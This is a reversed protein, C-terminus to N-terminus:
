EETAQQSGGPAAPASLGTETKHAKLYAADLRACAQRYEETEAYMGVARVRLTLGERDRLAEGLKYHTIVDASQATVAGPRSLYEDIEAPQIGEVGATAQKLLAAAVSRRDRSLVLALHDATLAAYWRWSALARVLPRLPLALLRYLLRREDEVRHCLGLLGANGAKIHGIERAILAWTEARSLRQQLGGPVVITRGVTIMEPAQAATVAEAAVGVIRAQKSVMEALDPSRAGGATWRRLEAGGAGRYFHVFSLLAWVAWAIMLQLRVPTLAALGLIVLIVAAGIGIGILKARREDPHAFDRATFKVPTLKHKKLKVKVAM